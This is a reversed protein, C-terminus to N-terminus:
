NMNPLRQIISSLGIDSLMEVLSHPAHKSGLSVLKHDLEDCVLVVGGVKPGSPPPRLVFYVEVIPSYPPANLDTNM